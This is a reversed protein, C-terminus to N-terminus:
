QSVTENSKLFIRRKKEEEQKKQKNWRFTVQLELKFGVRIRMDSFM